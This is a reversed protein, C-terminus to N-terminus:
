STDAPAFNVKCCWTFFKFKCINEQKNTQASPLVLVGSLKDHPFSPNWRPSVRRKGLVVLKMSRGQWLEQRASDSLAHLQKVRAPQYHQCHSPLPPLSPFFSRRRLCILSWLMRAPHPFLPLGQNCLCETNGKKWAPRHIFLVEISAPGKSVCDLLLLYICVCKWRGRSRATIHNLQWFVHFEYLCTSLWIVM